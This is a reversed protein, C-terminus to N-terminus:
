TGPIHHPTTGKRRSWEPGLLSGRERLAPLRRGGRHRLGRPLRVVLVHHRVVRRVGPCRQRAGLKGPLDLLAAEDQHVLLVRALDELDLMGLSPLVALGLATLDGGVQKNNAEERGAVVRRIWHSQTPTGVPKKPVSM